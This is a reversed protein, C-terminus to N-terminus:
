PSAARGQLPQALQITRAKCESGFIVTATKPQVRQHRSLIIGGVAMLLTQNRGLSEGQWFLVPSYHFPGLSSEGDTRRLADFAFATQGDELTPGLIIEQGSHIDTNTFASAPAQHSM